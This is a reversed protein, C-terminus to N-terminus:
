RYSYLYYQRFYPTDAIGKIPKLRVRGRGALEAPLFAPLEGPRGRLQRLNERPRGPHTENPGKQNMRVCGPRLVWQLQTGAPLEGLATRRVPRSRVRVSAAM